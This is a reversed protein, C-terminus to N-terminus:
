EASHSASTRRRAARLESIRIDDRPAPIVDRACSTMWPAPIDDRAQGPIWRPGGTRESRAAVPGARKRSHGGSAASRRASRRLKAASPPGWRRGASQRAMGSHRRKFEPHLRMTADALSARSSRVRRCSLERRRDFGLLRAGAARWRNRALCKGLLLGHPAAIRQLGKPLCTCPGLVALCVRAIGWLGGDSARVVGLAIAALFPQDVDGHRPGFFLTCGATQGLAVRRRLAGRIGDRPMHGFALSSHSVHRLRGVDDSAARPGTVHPAGAEMHIFRWLASRM